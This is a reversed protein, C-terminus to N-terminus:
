RADSRAEFMGSVQAWAFDLHARLREEATNPDRRLIAEFIGKHFAYNETNRSVDRPMKEWQVLLWDTYARHIAPLVPNRPMDYLVGHFRVDTKYFQTSNPIAAENAELAAELKAIDDRSAHLAADRVLSAETMTRLDFLNKIGSPQGLLQAVVGGVAGIAADYGPEAVIPRYGPRATVLGRSALSRLAERVVTRSVGHAQVIEREPPLPDGPRLSGKLIRSEIAAILEDAARPKLNTKEQALRGGM